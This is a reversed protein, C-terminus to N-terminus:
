CDNDGRCCEGAYIALQRQLTQLDRQLNQLMPAAIANLYVIATNEAGELMDGYHEVVRIISETSLRAQNMVQQVDILVPGTGDPIQYIANGTATSSADPVRSERFSLFSTELSEIYQVVHKNCSIKIQVIPTTKVLELHQSLRAPGFTPM